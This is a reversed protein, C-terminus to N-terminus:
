ILKFSFFLIQKCHWSFILSACKESYQNKGEFKRYEQIIGDKMCKKDMKLRYLLLDIKKQNIYIEMWVLPLCNECVEVMKKKLLLLRWKCGRNTFCWSIAYRIKFRIYWTYLIYGVMYKVSKFSTYLLINRCRQNKQCIPILFWRINFIFHTSM